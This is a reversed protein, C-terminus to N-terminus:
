PIKLIELDVKEMWRAMEKVDAHTYGENVAASEHDLVRMRWEQPVDANFLLSNLTHRLSHFVKSRFANGRSGRSELEKMEIEAEEVLKRFQPSLGWRTSVGTEYLSPCIPGAERGERLEALRGALPEILPVRVKRGEGAADTKKVPQWALVQAEGIKEVMEWRMKACDGLRAGTCLGLLIMTHWDRAHEPTRKGNHCTEILRGIEALTFPERERKAGISREVQPWPNVTAQGAAVAKELIMGMTNVNMKATKTSNGGTVLHDYFAQAMELTIAGVPLSKARDGLWKEFNRIHTRYTRRTPEKVRRGRVELWADAFEIWPDSLSRGSMEVIGRLTEFVKRRLEQDDVGGPGAIKAVREYQRAIEMAADRDSCHTSQSKQKWREETADWVQFYAHYFQTDKGKLHVSAM